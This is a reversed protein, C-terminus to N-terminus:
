LRSMLWRKMMIGIMSAAVVIWAIGALSLATAGGIIVLDVVWRTSVWEGLIYAAFIMLLVGFLALGGLIFIAANFWGVETDTGVPKNAGKADALNSPLPNRRVHVRMVRRSHQGPSLVAGLIESRHLIRGTYRYHVSPSHVENARVNASDIDHIVTYFSKTSITYVQGTGKMVIDPPDIQDYMGFSLGQKHDATWQHHVMSISTSAEDASM